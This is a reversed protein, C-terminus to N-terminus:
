GGGELMVKVRLITAVALADTIEGALTMRVVEAFPVRKVQLEETGEPASPGLTLGRALYSHSVQDTICNSLHMTMVHSWDRAIIGTEERLERKASELPDTGVPAGGEPIEWSYIDLPFRHQGVLWTHNEDDLPLIAIADNKFHVTGYIGKKKDPRLVDHHRVEIWPNAYAVHRRLITFPGRKEESM